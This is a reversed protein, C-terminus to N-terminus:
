PSRSLSKSVDTRYAAMAPLYGVLSALVILGPILFIEQAQTQLLGITVGTMDFIYGSIGFIVLHGLAWGALGGGLSLLISELLIVSLVTTRGAGLARMIAIERQREHMSNYISVMIGIGAVVVVLVALSLQLVDVGGLISDFLKNIERVPSVVQAYPGKNILKPLSIMALPHASRILIATVEREDEPLPVYKPESGHDHGAHEDHGSKGEPEPNEQGNHEAGAPEMGERPVKCNM